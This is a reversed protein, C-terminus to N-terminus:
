VAEFPLKGVRKLVRSRFKLWPGLALSETQKKIASSIPFRNTWEKAQNLSEEILIEIGSSASNCFQSELDIPSEILERYFPYAWVHFELTVPLKFSQVAQKIELLASNAQRKKPQEFWNPDIKFTCPKTEYTEAASDLIKLLIETGYQDDLLILTESHAQLFEIIFESFNM